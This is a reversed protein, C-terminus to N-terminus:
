SDGIGFGTCKFCILLSAEEVPQAIVEPHAHSVEAQGLLDVATVVVPLLRHGAHGDLPHGHLAQRLGDVGGLTVHHTWCWSRCRSGPTKGTCQPHPTRAGTRRLHDKPTVMHSITDRPLVGYGPTWLWSSSSSSSDPWRSFGGSSQSGSSHTRMSSQKRRTVHCRTNM